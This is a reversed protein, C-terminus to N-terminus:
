KCNGGWKTIGMKGDARVNQFWGSDPKGAFKGTGGTAKWMGKDSGAAQSFVISQTDGDKDRRACHGNTQVKGDPTVLATGYCVGTALDYISDSSTLMSEAQFATLTMGKGVDRTEANTTVLADYGTCNDARAGTAVLGAGAMLAIGALQITRM